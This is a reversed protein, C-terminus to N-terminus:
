FNFLDSLSRLPTFPDLHIHERSRLDHFRLDQSCCIPDQPEQQSSHILSKKSRTRRLIYFIKFHSHPHPTHCPLFCAHTRLAHPCFNDPAFHTRTPLFADCRVSQLIGRSYIDCCTLIQQLNIDGNEPTM